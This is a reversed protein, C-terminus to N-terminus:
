RNVALEEEIWLGVYKPHLPGKYEKGNIFIAPTGNVGAANGEAIDAEVRPLAANYNAEFRGMDLGLAKAYETLEPKRHNPAKAFLLEHMAQFKGQEHAALAAQAAGKSHVHSPLPFQKYYIVAQDPYQALAEKLIPVFMKCSPCGYDFFEVVKVPADPAGTYPAGDVKFTKRPADNKYRLEYFEKIESDDAEDVLMEVAYRAAFSAQKCSQDEALSTRLSHAKGCPSPLTDALAYFRKAKAEDLKSVDVGPVPEAPAVSAPAPKNGPKDGTAAPTAQPKGEAKDIAAVVEGAEPSAASKKDCSAGSLAVVSVALFAPFVYKHVQSSASITVALNYNVRRTM